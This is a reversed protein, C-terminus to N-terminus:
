VTELPAVERRELNRRAELHREIGVGVKRSIGFAVGRIAVEDPCVPVVLRPRHADLGASLRAEGSVPLDAVAVGAFIEVGVVVGGVVVGGDDLIVVLGFVFRLGPFEDLDAVADVAYGAIIVGVAAEVDVVGGRFPARLHLDVVIDASGLLLEDEEVFAVAIVLYDVAVAAVHDLHGLRRGGVAFPDLGPAVVAGVGLLPLEFVVVAGDGGRGSEIDVVFVSAM